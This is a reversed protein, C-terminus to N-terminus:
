EKIEVELEAADTLQLLFALAELNSGLQARHEIAPLRASGREAASMEVAGDQFSNRELLQACDFVQLLRDARGHALKDRDTASRCALQPKM